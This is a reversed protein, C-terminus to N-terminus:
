RQRGDDPEAQGACGLKRVTDDARLSVYVNGVTDLTVASGPTKWIFALKGATASTQTGKTTAAPTTTRSPTTRTATSKATGNVAPTLVLVDGGTQTPQEPLVFVTDTPPVVAANTAQITATAVPTAPDGCATLSVVLLLLALARRIPKM